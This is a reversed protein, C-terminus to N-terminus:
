RAQQPGTSGRQGYKQHACNEHHLLFLRSLLRLVERLNEVCADIRDDAWIRGHRDKLYFLIAHRHKPCLAQLTQRGIVCRLLKSMPRKGANAIGTMASAMLAVGTLAACVMQLPSTIASF